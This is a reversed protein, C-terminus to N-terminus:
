VIDNRDVKDRRGLETGDFGIEKLLRFKGVVSLNAERIMQYKVAIRVKGALPGSQAAGTTRPGAMGCAAAMTSNLFHRPKMQGM